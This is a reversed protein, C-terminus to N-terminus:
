DGVSLLTYEFHTNWNENVSWNSHLSIGSKMPERFQLTCKKGPYWVRTCINGQLATKVISTYVQVGTEINNAASFWNFDTSVIAMKQQRSLDTLYRQSTSNLSYIEVMKWNNEGNTLKGISM